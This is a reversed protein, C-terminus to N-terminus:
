GTKRLGMLDAHRRQGLDVCKLVFKRTSDGFQLLDKERLEYYRREDLQKGNLKTGNTSGLDFAYLCVGDPRKRFQLVCHLRSISAHRLVIDCKHKGAGLLFVSKKKLAHTEAHQGNKFEYLRWEQSEPPALADAPERYKSSMSRAAEAATARVKKKADYKRAAPAGTLYGSLKAFEPQERPREDKPEYFKSEQAESGWRDGFKQADQEERNRREVRAERRGKRGRDRSRDRSSSRRRRDPM